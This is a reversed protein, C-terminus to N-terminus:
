KGDVYNKIYNIQDQTLAIFECGTDYIDNNNKVWKVVASCWFSPKDQICLTFNILDGAKLPVRGTFSIGSESINTTELLPQNTGYKIFVSENNVQPYYLDSNHEVRKKFRKNDHSVNEIKIDEKMNYDGRM